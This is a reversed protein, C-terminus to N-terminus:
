FAALSEIQIRDGIKVKATFSIQTASVWTVDEAAGKAQLVGNRWIKARSDDRFQASTPPM